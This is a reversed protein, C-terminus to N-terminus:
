KLLVLKRTETFTGSQLVYFYMGSPLGSGDFSISHRGASIRGHILIAIERGLLDFVKLSADNTVPLEFSILTTPNFPNPYNQFLAFDRQQRAAGEVALLQDGTTFGAAASNVSAGMSDVASVHWFYSTQGALPPNLHVLTDTVVTDAVVHSFLSDTAVQVRYSTAPMSQRWTLIADRPQGSLGVPSVVAPTAVYIRLWKMAPRESWDSRILYANPEWIDGQLYGWLTIGKVGPDEWFLPFYIKYNALQISDSAENIDFESIYVPLGTAVLRDLNSKLTSVSYSYPSSAGAPSKFEFYHGQIGIGDILGRVKLTDILKIYNTTVNNDQLINYDNVLLKTDPFFANRAMQFATVVWDWGTSGNGGLANLYPPPAHFPENVVDVFRTSTYRQAVTDIWKGVAARQTASDLAGIWSPQQSGWVLNHHKYPFFSAYAFNYINDLDGWSYSGQSGEVSGWKGANEPTVQNWFTGFNPSSYGYCSGLFKAQGSALPQSLVGSSFVCALGMVAGVISVRRVGPLFRWRAGMVGARIERVSKESCRRCGAGDIGMRKM